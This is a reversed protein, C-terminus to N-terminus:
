ASSNRAARSPFAAGVGTARVKIRGDLNVTAGYVSDHEAKDAPAAEGTMMSEDVAARGSVVVGDVPIREGPRVAVVDGKNVTEAPVDREQGDLGILHAVKPALDMLGKIAAATGAKARAELLKGIKILTIILASTEFYVHHGLAPAFLLAVSYFYAMSSGMAVLVDMNASRNRLGKFGGIYYGLGTYFQVPTALAFLLWNVWGAHAWAGLMDMDRAMSIVFLPATFIVGVMLARRQARVEDERAQAEVDKREAGEAELAPLVLRYGAREVAAAMTELNTLQPDFKIWASETALNVTAGTVGPTKKKLAREVAAACNACTMGIVPLEIKEESM